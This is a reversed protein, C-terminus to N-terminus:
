ISKAFAGCTTKILKRGYPIYSASYWALACYQLIAFIICLVAVDIAFAAVFTMVLLVIYVIFATLRVPATAMKLHKKFGVLFCMGLLSVVNGMSYCIAFATLRGSFVLATGLISLALGVFFCGCFAMLRETRSLHFLGPDDGMPDDLGFRSQAQQVNFPLSM